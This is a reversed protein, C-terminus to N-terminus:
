KGSATSSSSLTATWDRCTTAWCRRCVSSAEIMNCKRTSHCCHSFLIRATHSRDSDLSTALSLVVPSGCTKGPLTRHQTRTRWESHSRVRHRRLVQEMGHTQLVGLLVTAALTRQTPGNQRRHGTQAEVSAAAARVVARGIHQCGVTHPSSYDCGSSSASFSHPLALAEFRREIVDNCQGVTHYALSAASLSANCRPLCSLSCYYQLLSM